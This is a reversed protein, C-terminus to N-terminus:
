AKLEVETKSETETGNVLSVNHKALVELSKSNAARM